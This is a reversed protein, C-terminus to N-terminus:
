WVTYQYSQYPFFKKNMLKILQHLQFVLQFSKIESGVILGSHEKILKKMDEFSYGSENALERICTHIKSIQATSGNSDTLSIFMDVEQGESLKGIFLNYALKDTQKPYTLKGGEIKLKASFM